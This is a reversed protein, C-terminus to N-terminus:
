LVLTPALRSLGSVSRTTARSLFAVSFGGQGQSVGRQPILLAGRQIRVVSSVRGFGGPRLVAGPNLFQAEVLIAGTRVDVERNIAYIRGNKPYPSGDSLPLEFELKSM